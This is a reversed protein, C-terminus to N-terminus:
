GSGCHRVARAFDPRGQRAPLLSLRIASHPRDPIAVKEQACTLRTTHASPHGTTTSISEDTRPYGSRRSWLGHLPLYRPYRHYPLKAAPTVAEHRRGVSRQPSVRYYQKVSRIHPIQRQYRTSFLHYGDSEGQYLRGHDAAMDRGRRAASAHQRSFATAMNHSCIYASKDVPPLGTIERALVRAKAVEKIGGLTALLTKWLLLLVKKVPYGKPVRDKLAAIMEFLVIPLSPSM